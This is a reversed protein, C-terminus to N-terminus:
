LTRRMFPFNFSSPSFAASAGPITELTNLKTSPFGRHYDDRIIKPHLYRASNNMRTQATDVREFASGRTGDKWWEQMVRGDTLNLTRDFQRPQTRKFFFNNDEKGQPRDLRRGSAMVLGGDDTSWRKMWADSKHWRDTESREVKGERSAGKYDSTQSNIFIQLIGQNLKRPLSSSHILSNTFPLVPVIRTLSPGMLAPQIQLTPACPVTTGSQTPVRASNDDRTREAEPM